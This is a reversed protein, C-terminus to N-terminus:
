IYNEEKEAVLFAFFANFSKFTNAIGIGQILPYYNKNTQYTSDMIIISNFSKLLLISTCPIILLGSILNNDINWLVKWNLSEAYDALSKIESKGCMEEKRIKSKLNNVDKPLLNINGYESNMATRIQFNSCNLKVLKNFTELQDKTLIRNEPYIEPCVPKLHNHLSNHVLVVYKNRDKLFKITVTVPCNTRRSFTNRIKNEKPIKRSNIYKGHHACVLYIFNFPNTASSRTVLVFGDIKAANEVTTNAFDFSDFMSNNLSSLNESFFESM